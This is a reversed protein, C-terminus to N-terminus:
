SSKKWKVSCGFAKTAPVSPESGKVLADLANRLDHVTVQDGKVNDDVRGRYRLTLAGDFVFLHPTVQAGYAKAIEQTGDVLYPYPFGKEKARTVMEEFGDAPQVKPDNPNIAVFRVGQAEYARAIEILRDEYAKAYPCHNCTFVVVTGKSGKVADLTHIKGDTGKLSFAPAKAGIELQPGTAEASLCIGTAALALLSVMLILRKM